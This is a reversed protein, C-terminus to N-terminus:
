PPSAFIYLVFKYVSPFIKIFLLIIPSSAVNLIILSGPFVLIKSIIVFPLWVGWKNNFDSLLKSINPLILKVPTISVASFEFIPVIVIDFPLIISLLSSILKVLLVNIVVPAISHPVNVASVPVIIPLKVNVSLAIVDEPSKIFIVDDPALGCIDNSSM